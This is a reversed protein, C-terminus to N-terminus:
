PRQRPASAPTSSIIPQSAWRWFVRQWGGAARHGSLSGSRRFHILESLRAAAATQRAYSLSVPLLAELSRAIVTGIAAGPIGLEPLGM